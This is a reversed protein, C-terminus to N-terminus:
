THVTSSLSRQKRRYYTAKSIGEEKWPTGIRQTKSWRAMVRKRNAESRGAGTYKSWTWNTVSKVTSRIESYPLPNEFQINMQEAATAVSVRLDEITGGNKKIVGSERYAFHRISNFIDTNRGLGLEIKEPNTFKKDEHTLASDLERLEYPREHIIQSNWSPHLPNKTLTGRYRFDAGMRRTFGRRVAEFFERPKERSSGNFSVPKSLLWALHAHDNSPNCCIYNPYPLHAVDDLIGFDFLGDYDTVLWEMLNEHSHQIYRFLIAETAPKSVLPEGLVDTVRPRRPLHQIFFNSLKM